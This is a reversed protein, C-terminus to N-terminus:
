DEETRLERSLLRRMAEAVAAKEYLVAHMEDIIPTQIGLRAACEKASRTTPVGEAVMEMSEM